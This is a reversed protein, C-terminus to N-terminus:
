ELYRRLAHSWQATLLSDCVPADSATRFRERLVRAVAGRRESLSPSPGTEQIAVEICNDIWWRTSDPSPVLAIDGRLLSWGLYGALHLTDAATRVVVAAKCFTEQRHVPDNQDPTILLDILTVTIDTAPPHSVSGFHFLRRAAIRVSDRSPGFVIHLDQASDVCGFVYGFSSTLASDLAVTDRNVWARRFREVVIRPDEIGVARPRVPDDDKSCSVLLVLAIIALPLIARARM